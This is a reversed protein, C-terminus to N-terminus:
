FIISGDSDCWSDSEQDVDDIFGDTEDQDDKHSDGTSKLSCSPLINKMEASALRSLTCVEVIDTSESYVCGKCIDQKTPFCCDTLEAHGLWTLKYQSTGHVTKKEIHIRTYSSLAAVKGLMIGLKVESEPLYDHEIINSSNLMELLQSASGNWINTNALIGAVGTIVTEAANGVKLNMANSIVASMYDDKQGGHAIVISTAWRDFEAFRTKYTVKVYKRLKIAYSLNELIYRRVGPAILKFREILQSKEEYNTAPIQAFKVVITRDLLDLADYPMGVASMICSRQYEYCIQKNDTYLARKMFVDKTIARCFKNCHKKSLSGVNDFCPVPNKYMNFAFEDDKDDLPVDLPDAPDVLARLFRAATTKGSGQPGLLLLLPKEVNSLFQGTLWAIVLTQDQHNKINLLNWFEEIDEPYNALKFPAISPNRYFVLDSPPVVSVGNEDIRACEFSPTGLDIYVTEGQHVFRNRLKIKKGKEQIYLDLTSIFNKLDIGRPFRGHQKYFEHKVWNELSESSAVLMRERHKTGLDVYSNKEDYYLPNSLVINQILTLDDQEEDDSQTLLMKVQNVSFKKAM